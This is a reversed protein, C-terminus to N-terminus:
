QNPMELKEAKAAESVKRAKCNCCVTVKIGTGPVHDLHWCHNHLWQRHRILIGLTERGVDNMFITPYPKISTLIARHAEAVFQSKLIPRPTQRTQLSM